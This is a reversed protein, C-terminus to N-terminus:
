KAPTYPLSSHHLVIVLAGADNRRYGFTKDVMVKSGDKGVIHVNGMAIAMNGEAVVGKIEPTCSTWGKLAFGSDDPYTADGGVFYALAGQKDMRFTQAGHTLTPKFLVIGQDYNYATSLVNQAMAKADKGAAHKAAIGVLAECWARQAAEVEARAIPPASAGGTSGASQHACASVLALPLILLKHTSMPFSVLV